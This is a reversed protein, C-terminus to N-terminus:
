AYINDKKFVTPYPYCLHQSLDTVEMGFKMSVQRATQAQYPLWCVLMYLVLTIAIIFSSFKFDGQVKM